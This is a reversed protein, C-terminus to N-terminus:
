TRIIAKFEELSPTPKIRHIMRHCNSCLVTFDKSPDLQVKTKELSSIPVIHHAEIYNRGIEGYRNEFDFGCAKCIYGHIEKAKKCLAQNREVRRHIRYKTLDELWVEESYSDSGPAESPQNEILEEYINIFKLLDELM